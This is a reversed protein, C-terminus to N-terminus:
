LLELLGFLLEVAIELGVEQLVFDFLYGLVDLGDTISGANQRGRVRYTLNGEV